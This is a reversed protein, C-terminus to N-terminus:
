NSIVRKGAKFMTEKLSSIEELEQKLTNKMERIEDLDAAACLGNKYIRCNNFSGAYTSVVNLVFYLM